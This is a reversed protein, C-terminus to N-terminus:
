GTTDLLFKDKCTKCKSKDSTLELCNKHYVLSKDFPECNYVGTDKKFKLNKKSDNSEDYLCEACSTGDVNM